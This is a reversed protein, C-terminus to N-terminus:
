TALTGPTLEGTESNQEKVRDAYPLTNLTQECNGINPSICAIM